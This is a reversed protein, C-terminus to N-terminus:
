NKAHIEGLRRNHWERFWMKKELAYIPTNNEKCWAKIKELM